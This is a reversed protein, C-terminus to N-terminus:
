ILSPFVVNESIFAPTNIMDALPTATAGDRSKRPSMQSGRPTNMHTHQKHQPLTPPFPRCENHAREEEQGWAAGRWAVGGWWWACLCVGGGCHTHGLKAVRRAGANPAAGYTRPLSHKKGCTHREPTTYSRTSELERARGRLTSAVVECSALNGVFTLAYSTIKGLQSSPARAGVGGGGTRMGVLPQLNGLAGSLGMAAVIVGKPTGQCIMALWPQEKKAAVNRCRGDGLLDHDNM